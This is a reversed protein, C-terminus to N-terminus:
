HLDKKLADVDLNRVAERYNFDPGLPNPKRDHQHLIDLNLANPWWDTNSKGAATHGGHMVPCKAQNTM